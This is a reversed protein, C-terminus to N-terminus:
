KAVEPRQPAPLMAGRNARIWKLVEAPKGLLIKLWKASHIPKGDSGHWFESVIILKWNPRDTASLQIQLVEVHFSYVEGTFSHRDISCAVGNAAWKHQGLASGPKHIIFEIDSIIRASSLRQM